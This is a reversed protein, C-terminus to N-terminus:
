IIHSSLSVLKNFKKKIKKPLFGNLRTGLPNGQKDLLIVSNSEFGLFFGTNKSLRHTTRIVVAKFIDKKKLRTIKKPNDRLKQISVVVIDGIKAQKKRFGGLVKICKVIKAGSNDAVKLLTQQQIM